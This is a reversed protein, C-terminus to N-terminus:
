RRKPLVESDGMRETIRFTSVVSWISPSKYKLFHKNRTIERVSGLLVAADKLKKLNKKRMKFFSKLLQSIM